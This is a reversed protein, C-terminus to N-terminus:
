KVITGTVTAQTQRNKGVNPDNELSYWIFFYGRFDSNPALVVRNGGSKDKWCKVKFETSAGNAMTFDAVDDALSEDINGPASNTCLVKKVVVNQGNQNFVKIGLEINNSTDASYILPRSDGCTFGTQSFSCQDQAKIFQPLYFALIALVILIVLIAWGYTMLYEMAAQGRLHRAKFKNLSIAAQSKFKM